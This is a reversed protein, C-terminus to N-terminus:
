KSQCDELQKQALEYVPGSTWYRAIQYLTMRSHCFKRVARFLKRQEGNLVPCFKKAEVTAPPEYDQLMSKIEEYLQFPFTQGNEIQVVSMQRNLSRLRPVYDM